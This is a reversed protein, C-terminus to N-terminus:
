VGGFKVKNPSNDLISIYQELIGEKGNPDTEMYRDYKKKREESDAWGMHKIPIMTPLMAKSSNAPFRGCHLKKSSWQYDFNEKYRLIMPYFYRHACWLSDDRYHENDWMDYLKLGISDIEKSVTNLIYKLYEIHEDVLLEDADFCVIWDNNKAKKITELWLTERAKKEDINWLQQKSEIIKLELNSNEFYESVFQVTKDTSNDDLITITNCLKKMNRLVKEFVNINNIFRREENRVLMMAHIM